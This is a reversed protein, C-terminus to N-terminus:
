TAELFTNVSALCSIGPSYAEASEQKIGASDPYYGPSSGALRSRQRASQPSLMANHRKSRAGTPAVCCVLTIRIM